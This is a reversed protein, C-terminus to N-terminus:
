FSNEAKPLNFYNSLQLSILFKECWAAFLSVFDKTIIIHDNEVKVEPYKKVVSYIKENDNTQSVIGNAHILCHRIYAVENISDWDRTNDPFKLGVLKTLYKKSRTIGRDKLDKPSINLNKSRFYYDSLLDLSSELIAYATLFISSWLINPYIINLQQYRLENFFMQPISSDTPFLKITEVLKEGIIQTELMQEIDAAMYQIQKFHSITNELITNAEKIMVNNINM